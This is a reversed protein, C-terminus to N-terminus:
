KRLTKEIARAWSPLSTDEHSFNTLVVSKNSEAKQNASYNMKKKGLLAFLQTEIEQSSLNELNEKIPSLEEETLESTFSEVIEVKSALEQQQKLARFESLEAEMSTVQERLSEIEAKLTANEEAYNVQFLSDQPETEEVVEETDANEIADVLETVASEVEQIAEQVNQIVTEDTEEPASEIVENVEQVLEQVTEEVTNEESVEEETQEEVVESYEETPQEEQVPETVEETIEEITEVVEENATEEVVLVKEDKMETKVESDKIVEKLEKAMESLDFKMKELSFKGIRASEFCPEVEKGLICCGCFEADLIDYAGLEEDWKADMIEIEMSQNRPEELIKEVEPFRKYWVYADCVLYERKQGNREEVTEWEIVASEPIFGYAVTTSEFKVDNGKVTVKGGHDGFDEGEEIYEGVIPMGYMTPILKEEIMKKSFYTHNRNRGEYMVYVKVKAIQSSVIKSLKVTTSLKFNKNLKM